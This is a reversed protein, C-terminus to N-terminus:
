SAQWVELGHAGMWMKSPQLTYTMLSRIGHSDHAMINYLRQAKWPWSDSIGPVGCLPSRRGRGRSWTKGGDDCWLLFTELLAQSTDNPLQIFSTLHLDRLIDKLIHILLSILAFCMGWAYTSMYRVYIETYKGRWTAPGVLAPLINETAGSNTSGTQREHDWSGCAHHVRLLWDNCESQESVEMYCWGVALNFFKQRKERLHAQDVTSAPTGWGMRACCSQVIWDRGMGEWGKGDRGFQVLQTGQLPGHTGPGHSHGQSQQPQQPLQQPQQKLMAPPQQLQRQRQQYQQQLQQNQGSMQSQIWRQQALMQVQGPNWQKAQSIGSAKAIFPAKAPVNSVGPVKAAPLQSIGLDVRPNEIQQPLYGPRNNSAVQPNQLASTVECWSM